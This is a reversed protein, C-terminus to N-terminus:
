SRILKDKNQLLIDTTEKREFLKRDTLDLEKQTEIFEIIRLADQATLQFGFFFRLGSIELGLIANVSLRGFM